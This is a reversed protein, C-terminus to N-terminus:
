LTLVHRKMCQLEAPSIRSLEERINEEFEHLAHPNRKHEKDKLSGGGGWFFIFIVHQSCHLILQGHDKAKLTDGFIDSIAMTNCATHVMVLDQQFSSCLREKETLESFLRILILNIYRESNIKDKGQVSEVGSV